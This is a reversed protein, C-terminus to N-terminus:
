KKRCLLRNTGRVQAGMPGSCTECYDAEGTSRALEVLMDTGADDLELARCHLGDDNPNDLLIEYGSQVCRDVDVLCHISHRNPEQLTDTLYLDFLTGRNICYTDMVYGTYCIEDSQQELLRSEVSKSQIPSDIDAGSVRRLIQLMAAFCRLLRWSLALM